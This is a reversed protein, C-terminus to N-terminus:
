TNDLASRRMKNCYKATRPGLKGSARANEARVYSNRYSSVTSRSVVTIGGGVFLFEIWRSKWCICSAQNPNLSIDFLMCRNAEYHRCNKCKKVM